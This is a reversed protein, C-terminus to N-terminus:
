ESRTIKQRFAGTMRELSRACEERSGSVRLTRIEIHTRAKALRYKWIRDRRGAYVLVGRRAGLATCYALVQYVDPTEVTTKPLRKWKADIVLVARGNREVAIDPQMELQPQGSRPEFPAYLPQVMVGLREDGAFAQVVGRTVYREFVREMDLLFAPYATPGAAESPTLAEFLLRCVDFLPRYAATLRDPEATAFSAPELAIASVADYAQLSRQLAAKVNPGLLPSRLVLEATARPVQNVPVDVTFEEFRCHLQDKRGGASRLQAPLDLTGQLFRGSETRETYARHLGAASREQLLQALRGGLFDFATDGTTPTTQDNLTVFPATPDLLHFLNEVPIKPRILLRCTPGIITGVHGLPTLRHHNRRPTPALEVHGRHEALLFDVDATTLRCDTPSRETLTFSAKLSSTDM